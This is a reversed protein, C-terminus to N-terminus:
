TVSFSESHDLPQHLSARTAVEELKQDLLQAVELIKEDDFQGLLSSPKVYAIHTKDQYDDYVFLKLPVFLGVAPNLEYMQNAILPNGIIYLKAKKTRGCLSLYQGSEIDVFRIFSGTGLMSNLATKFDDSSANTNVLKQLLM